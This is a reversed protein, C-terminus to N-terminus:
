RQIDKPEDFSTREKLEEYKRKAEAADEKARRAFQDREEQSLEAFM